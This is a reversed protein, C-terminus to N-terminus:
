IARSKEAENCNVKEFIFNKMDFVNVYVNMFIGNLADIYFSTKEYQIHNIELILM